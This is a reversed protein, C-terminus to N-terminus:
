LFTKILMSILIAVSVGGFFGGLWASRVANM